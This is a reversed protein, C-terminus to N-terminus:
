FSYPRSTPLKQIYHVHLGEEDAEIIVDWGLTKATITREYLDSLTWTLNLKAKPYSFMGIKRRQNVKNYFENADQRLTKLSSRLQKLQQEETFQIAM